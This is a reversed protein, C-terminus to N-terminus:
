DVFMTHLLNSHSDEKGIEDFFGSSANERKIKREEAISEASEM